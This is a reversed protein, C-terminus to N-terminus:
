SSIADLWVPLKQNIEAWIEGASTMEMDPNTVEEIAAGYLLMCQRLVCVYAFGQKDNSGTRAWKYEFQTGLNTNRRQGRKFNPLANVMPSIEDFSNKKTTPVCRLAVFHSHPLPAEMHLYYLASLLKLNVFDFAFWVDPNIGIVPSEAFTQSELYGIDHYEFARRKQNASLNLDPILQPFNNKLAIAKETLNREEPPFGDRALLALYIAVIQEAQRSKSNCTSCAPFEFGEPFARGVFCDRNPLHDITETPAKACYCCIPHEAKFAQLRRKRQGM